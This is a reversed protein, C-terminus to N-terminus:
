QTDEQNLLKWYEQLTIVALTYHDTHTLMMLPLWDIRSLYLLVRPPKARQGPKATRKVIVADHGKLWKWYVEGAYWPSGTEEWFMKPITKHHKCEIKRGAIRVDGFEDSGDQTQNPATRRADFGCAKAENVIWREFAAGKTRSMKGM